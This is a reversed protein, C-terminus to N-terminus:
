WCYYSDANAPSENLQHDGMCGLLYVASPAAVERHAACDKPTWSDAVTLESRFRPAAVFTICVKGRAYSAPKPAATQAASVVALCVMATVGCCIGVLLRCQTRSM